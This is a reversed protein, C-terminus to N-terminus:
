SPFSQNSLTRHRLDATRPFFALRVSEHFNQHVGFGFFDKARRKQSDLAVLDNMREEVHHVGVRWVRHNLAGHVNMGSDCFQDGGHEALQLRQLSRSQFYLQVVAAGFGESAIIRVRSDLEQVSSVERQFRVTLFDGERYAIKQFRQASRLRLVQNERRKSAALSEVSIGPSR